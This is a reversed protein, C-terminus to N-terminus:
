HFISESLRILTLESSRSLRLGQELPLYERLQPINSNNFSCSTKIRTRISSVRQAGKYRQSIAVFCITKIRTRISSVRQAKIEKVQHLLFM